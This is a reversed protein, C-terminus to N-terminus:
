AAKVLARSFAEASRSWTFEQVARTGEAAIRTRMLNNDILSCVQGALAEVNGVPALLATKGHEAYERVGEHMTSVLACGCAMAEFGPLGWGEYVSPCLFIAAENYLQVLDEDRIACHYSMWNPLCHKLKAQGFLLVRVSPHTQHVIELARLGDEIGKYPGNSYLMAIVDGARQSSPMRVNFMAKNIGNPVVAAEYGMARLQRQITRNVTIKRFPLEWTARVFDAERGYIRYSDHIYYVVSGKDSGVRRTDWAVDYNSVVLFDSRRLWVRGIWPIRRVKVEVNM